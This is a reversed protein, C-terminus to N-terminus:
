QRSAMTQMGQGISKIATSFADSLMSLTQSDAQFKAMTSQFQQAGSSSSNGALSDLQQSEDVVQQSLKGLADGMAKAIAEMWNDGTGGGGTTSNGNQQGQAGLADTLSSAMTSSLQQTSQALGGHRYAADLVQQSAQSNSGNSGTAANFASTFANQAGSQSASSLNLQSLAGSFAQTAVQSTAQQAAEELAASTGGTEVAAVLEAAQMITDFNLGSM